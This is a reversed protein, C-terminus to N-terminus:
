GNMKDGCSVADITVDLHFLNTHGLFIEDMTSFLHAGPM